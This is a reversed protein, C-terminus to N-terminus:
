VLQKMARHQRKLLENQRDVADTLEEMREAVAEIDTRTAVDDPVGVETSAVPTGAAQEGTEAATSADDEATPDSSEDADSEADPESTGTPSGWSDGTTSEPDADASESADTVDGSETGANVDAQEAAANPDSGESTGLDANAAPETTEGDGPDDGQSDGGATGTTREADTEGGEGPVSEASEVPSDVTDGAGVADVTSETARDTGSDDGASEAAFPDEVGKALDEERDTVLPDIGSGMTLDDAAGSDDGDVGDDDGLRRNLEELSSVDHFEFLAEQLTRRVVPANDNPVKVRQPRGDIGVVISTAVSTQEFELGTVDAYDYVEFDEDWVAGGIHKVIRSDTVVLTLESFLYVGAVSERPELVDNVRLIGELLRELVDEGRNSPVTFSEPGEIYQLVFKTKRRSRKISLRETDLAYEEVGEDSILGEGSYVIARTPTFCVVDEDGLSIGTRIEEDGLAQQVLDPIDM